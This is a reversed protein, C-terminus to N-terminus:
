HFKRLLLSYGTTISADRTDDQGICRDLRTHSIIFRRRKTRRAWADVPAHEHKMELYRGADTRTRDGVRWKEKGRGRWGWIASIEAAHASSALCSRSVASTL